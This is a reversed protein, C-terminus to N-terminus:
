DEFNSGCHACKFCPGSLDVFEGKNRLDYIHDLALQAAEGAMEATSCDGTRVISQVDSVTSEMVIMWSWQEEYNPKHLHIHFNTM